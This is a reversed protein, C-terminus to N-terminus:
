TSTSAYSNMAADWSTIKVSDIKLTGYNQLGFAETSSSIIKLWSTDISDIVFNANKAVVLNTTLTWVGNSEKKLITPDHIVNNVDTLRTGAACSITIIQTSSSYSICAGTSISVTIPLLLLLIGASTIISLFVLKVTTCAEFSEM